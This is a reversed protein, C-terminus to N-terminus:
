TGIVFNNWYKLMSIQRGIPAGGVCCVSYIKMGETFSKLEDEIQQALERTPVVILIEEKPNMLVKQILPIVFAATKGTGTNAIGVVDAGRLVHPIIKDQIPTPSVYGKAVINRKLRADIAFDAFQHEPKFHEAAETIVANNVFKSLDFFQGTGAKKRTRAFPRSGGFSRPKRGFSQRSFSRTSM